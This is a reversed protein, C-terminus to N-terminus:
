DVIEARRRPPHMSYQIKTWVITLIAAFAISLFVNYLNFSEMDGWGMLIGTLGLLGGTLGTILIGILGGGVSRHQMSRAIWAAMIGFLICAVVGM